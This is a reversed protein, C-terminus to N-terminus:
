RIKLFHRVRLHRPEWNVPTALDSPISHKHPVSVWYGDSEDAITGGTPADETFGTHNHQFNHTNSGGLTGSTGLSDAGKLFRDREDPIPQGNIPSLPENVFGGECPVWITPDLAPTMGPIELIVAVEGIGTCELGANAAQALQSFLEISVLSGFNKLSDDIDNAM